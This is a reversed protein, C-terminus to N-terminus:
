SASTDHFFTPPSCPRTGHCTSPGFAHRSLHEAGLAHRSLRETSYPSSGHFDFPRPPVSPTAASIERNAHSGDVSKRRQSSKLPILLM